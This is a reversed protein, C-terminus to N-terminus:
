CGQWTCPVDARRRQIHQGGRRLRVIGSCGSEIRLVDHTDCGEHQPRQCGNNHHLVGQTDEASVVM